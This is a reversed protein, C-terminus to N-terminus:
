LERELHIRKFTIKTGFLKEKEAKTEFSVASIRLWNEQRWSLKESLIWCCSRLQAMHLALTSLSMKRQGIVTHPQQSAARVLSCPPM